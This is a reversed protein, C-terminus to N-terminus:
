RAKRRGRTDSTVVKTIGNAVVKLPSFDVGYNLVQLAKILKEPQYRKGYTGTTLSENTHGVLEAIMVEQVEAQKLGNIFTHRFSHFDKKADETVCARLFGKGHGSKLFWNSFNKGYGRAGQTLNMWLRPLGAKKVRQYYELFGLDILTSHIPIVRKAALTKLKKRGEEDPQIKFCWLGSEADQEVDEAHLQCVENLRMGNFLSILPVWLREPHEELRGKRAEEQFGEILRKLDVTDYAKRLEDARERSKPPKMGDALNKDLADERNLWAMLGKVVMLHKEITAPSLTEEEGLAIIEAISKGQYKKRKNIHPPLKKLTDLYERMDDRTLSKVPRDGVVRLFLTCISEYEKLTNGNAAEGRRYDEMFKEIMRSLLPSEKPPLMSPPPVATSGAKDDYGNNYNGIARESEIRLAEIFRKMMERALMSYQMTDPEPTIGAETLEEEVARRILSFDNRALDKQYVPIHALCNQRIHEPTAREKPVREGTAREHEWRSLLGHFYRDALEKLQTETLLGTRMITFLEETHYSWVKLLRKAQRLNKTHLSRKFDQKGQFHHALDRPFKVRFYYTERVKYLYTINQAMHNGPPLMM